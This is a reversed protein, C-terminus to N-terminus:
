EIEIKGIFALRSGYFTSSHSSAVNAHSFVLGYCAGANGGGRGLVRAKDGSYYYSDTYWQNYASNDNTLRSAICDCYRGFRMRGITYHTASSACATVTRETDTVPDYIHWVRDVKDAAIANGKNKLFSKYSVVNIAVNDAWETNCAVFNQMGFILNGINNGSYKRTQNGYSNFSNAGTTYSAGCGYGAYAQIDRTGILAMVLNAVDKSMEYDILQYGNRRFMALNQFDKYTFHLSTPAAINTVKGNEDYTWENSTANTGNGVKTKVGSISRMRMLGDVSAGYVGILRDPTHVWDPEIAEIANSDVAIAEADDLGTQSSFVFRKAGQPVNTFVYEGPTFDFLAHTIYMNFLEVVNNNEDVFAGGVTNSNSGPFRVQKMGEVDMSYVNHNANETIQLPKGVNNGSLFISSFEQLLIESLRKRTIKNATSMPEAVQSSVFFHKQQNKYDNVGKYWYPQLRKMIDFGEGSTDSLDLETGDAYYNYNEDSLQRCKMAGASADYIARYAHSAAEIRAFHGSKEYTNGYLYGTKNDVNTINASDEEEDNFIVQSFQANYIDLEKFYQQLAAVENDEILETLIWRGTIGSCQGSEDYANGNADLGICGSEKISRLMDVSASVNLNPIRVTKLASATTIQELLRMTDIYPCNNVFVKAVKNM